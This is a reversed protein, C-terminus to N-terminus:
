MMQRSSQAGTGSRDFSSNRSSTSADDSVPTRDDTSQIAASAPDRKHHDHSGGSASSTAQLRRATEEELENYRAEDFRKKAKKTERRTKVKQYIWSGGALILSAM